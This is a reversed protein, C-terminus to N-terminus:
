MNHSTKTNSEYLFAASVAAQHPAAAPLAERPAPCSVGTRRCKEYKMWLCIDSVEAKVNVLVTSVAAQHAAAASLTKHQAPRPCLLESQM